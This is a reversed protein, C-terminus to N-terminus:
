LFNLQFNIFFLLIEIGSWEKEVVLVREYKIKSTRKQVSKNVPIPDEINDILQFGNREFVELLKESTNIEKNSTFHDGVVFCGIKRKLSKQRLPNLLKLRINPEQLFM